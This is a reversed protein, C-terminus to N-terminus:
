KVIEHGDETIKYSHEDRTAELIDGILKHKKSVDSFQIKTKANIENPARFAYFNILQAVEARTIEENLRLDKNKESVPTM